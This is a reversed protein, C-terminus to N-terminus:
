RTRVQALLEARVADSWWPLAYGIDNDFRPDAIKFREPGILRALAGLVFDQVRFRRRHFPDEFTTADDLHRRLAAM